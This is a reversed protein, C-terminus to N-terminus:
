FEDKCFLQFEAQMGSVGHFFHHRSSFFQHFQFSNCRVECGASGGASKKSLADLEESSSEVWSNRDWLWRLGPDFLVAEFAATAVENLSSCMVEGDVGFVHEM